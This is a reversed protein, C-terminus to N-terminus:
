FTFAYVTDDAAVYFHHSAALITQFHHLGTMTQTGAFVVDGNLANFGHLVDDGEAGVAWVIPNSTGDTTTIIPAGGGNFSSCWLESISSSGTATVGLMTISTGACESSGPNNFAVMTGSSTSYVAAATRIQGTSVPTAAIEGGIGGFNTRDVLYANGDKGLALVRKAPPSNSVAIDLPLAETGGLDLDSDDLDQWDTPAFYDKTNVSHKLGPRLRIIAEGDSWTAANFTNGTTLYLAKGDGALGGQAWIGGGNARTAWHAAIAPTSPQVQIVTGNYTSCDGFNGGYNVYLYGKFLLLASREGQSASSFDIGQKKLADEVDLPWNSLVSGDSLSLAYLLHRVKNGDRTLADLYLVGAQPDIVPTGTVGIPDVDGCPLESVRVDQALQTKWIQAGTKGDLAYVSNSETAAIVEGDNSGTPNWFLPQAYIHGSLSAKFSKDLHMGAAASLTLGPVVYDGHRNLGNHYTVVSESTQGSSPASVVLLLATVFMGRKM